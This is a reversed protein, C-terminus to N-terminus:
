VSGVFQQRLHQIRHVVQVKIQLRHPPHPLRDPAGTPKSNRAPFNPTAYRAPSPALGMEVMVPNERAPPWVTCARKERGLAGAGCM